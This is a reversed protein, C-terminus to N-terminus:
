CQRLRGNQLPLWDWLKVILINAEVSDWDEVKCLYGIEFKVILIPNAEVSDWDEMKCLYVIKGNVILNAPCTDWLFSLASLIKKASGTMKNEAKPLRFWFITEQLIDPAM